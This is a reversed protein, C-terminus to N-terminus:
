SRREAQVEKQVTRRAPRFVSKWVSVTFLNQVVAIDSSNDLSYRFVSRFRLEVWARSENEPKTLDIRLSRRSVAMPTAHM